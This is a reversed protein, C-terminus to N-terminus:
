HRAPLLPLLLELEDMKYRTAGVLRAVATLEPAGAIDTALQQAPWHHSLLGAISTSSTLTRQSPVVAVYQIGETFAGPPPFDDKSRLFLHINSVQMLVSPSANSNLLAGIRISRAQRPIEAQANRGFITRYTTWSAPAVGGALGFYSYTGNTWGTPSGAGKPGALHSDLASGNEDYWAVALYATGRGGKIQRLSVELVYTEERSIALIDSTFIESAQGLRSQLALKSLGIDNAYNVFDPKPGALAVWASRKLGLSDSNISPLHFSSSPRNSLIAAVRDDLSKSVPQGIMRNSTPHMGPSFTNLAYTVTDTAALQGDRIESIRSTVATSYREVVALDLDRPTVTIAHWFRNYSYTDAPFSVAIGVTATAALFAVQRAFIGTKASEFWAVLQSIGYTLALGSPIAFLMRHFTIIERVGKEALSNALPLAVFPLALAVVPGVTLWGIVHNRRLLLTGAIFNIVGFAGLIELLREAAPSRWSFNFGYWASMWGCPIYTADISPQRPFWTITAWSLLITVIILSVWMKRSREVLRWILVSGIGLGAIGIGQIHNFAVLPVLLLLHGTARIAANWFTQRPPFFPNMDNGVEREANGAKVTELAIRLLAVAGLQSYMTSSLGYYRFFSFCSNGFTLVNVYVFVIAWRAKLGAAQALRYYQWSLLLGIMTYYLQLHSFPTTSPARGILSYSFFYFSKYGASHNAVVDHTAWETIRSLHEWPDSPWELYVGPITFLLALLLWPMAPSAVKRIASLQFRIGSFGSNLAGRSPGLLEASQANSETKLENHKADRWWRCLAIMALVFNIAHFAWYVYLLPPIWSRAGLGTSEAGQANAPWKRWAYLMYTLLYPILFVWGSSFYARLARTTAYIQVM